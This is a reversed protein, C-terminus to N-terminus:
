TVPFARKLPKEDPPPFSVRWFRPSPNLFEVAVQYRGDKTQGQYVVRCLMEEETVVNTLMIRTGLPLVKPVDFLAGHASVTETKTEEYIPQGEPTTSYIRVPIRLTIRQSRRREIGSKATSSQPETEQTM